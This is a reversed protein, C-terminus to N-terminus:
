INTRRIKSIDLHFFCMQLHQINKLTRMVPVGPIRVLGGGLGDHECGLPLPSTNKGRPLLLLPLPELLEDTCGDVGDLM